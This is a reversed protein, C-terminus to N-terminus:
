GHDMAAAPAQSEVTGGAWEFFEPDEAYLDIGESATLIETDELALGDAGHHSMSPLALFVALGVVAVSAMAGAPVWARPLWRDARRTAGLARQRAQNLKSRTSGDMAAVSADFAARAQAHFVSDEDDQQMPSM